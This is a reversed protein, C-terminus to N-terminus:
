RRAQIATAATRQPTPGFASAAREVLMAPLRTLPTLERLMHRADVVLRFSLMKLSPARWSVWHMARSSTAFRRKYEMDGAMFDYDVLGREAAHRIAFTHVIVGPATKDVVDYDYGCQYFYSRGRFVFSYQYGITTAGARLRLLQIWGLPFCREVLARHYDSFAQSAFSGAAGRSTWTKQHLRALEALFELAEVTTTAEDLVLEGLAAYKRVNQRYRTRERAALMDVVDKGSHRVDALSVYYSRTTQVVAHAGIFATRLAHLSAGDLLGPAALEDWPERDIHERLARAVAPEYGSRCLLGNFEICASDAEDEGATNLYIRRIAYPGKRVTRRVLVVAGVVTGEDNRFLLISPQVRPGFVDLWAGVAEPMLFFSAHECAEALASWVTVLEPWRMWDHTDVVLTGDFHQMSPGVVADAMGSSM